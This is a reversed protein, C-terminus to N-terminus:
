KDVKNEKASYSVSGTSVITGDKQQLGYDISIDNYSFSLNVTPIEIPIESKDATANMQISTVFVEGMDVKLYPKKKDAGSKVASLTASKFHTGACINKFLKPTAKDLYTSVSFDGLNVKGAGSGGNAEVSSLQSAGWNWSLLQIQNKYEAVASEGEVGDLKLYYDVAM